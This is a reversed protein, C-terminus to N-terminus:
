SAVARLEKRLQKRVRSVIQSVRQRTVGLTKGLEAMSVDEDTLFHERIILRDRDELLAVASQVRQAVTRQLELRSLLMEPSPHEDRPEFRRNAAEQTLSVDCSGLASSVYAVDSETVELADALESRTPARGLKQALEREMSGLRSRTIRGNRTSPLRVLNRNEFAYERVRARIWWKAYVSLRSPQSLDFRQVAEILGVCGESVLDQPQLSARDFRSAAEIVLRMHSQVLEGLATRDGSQALGILEREREYSLCPVRTAEARMRKWAGQSSRETFM